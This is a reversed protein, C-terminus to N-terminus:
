GNITIKLINSEIDVESSVKYLSAFYKLESDSVVNAKFGFSTVKTEIPKETTDMKLITDTMEDNVYLQLGLANFKEKDVLGEVNLMVGAVKDESYSGLELKRESKTGVEYFTRDGYEVENYSGSYNYSLYTTWHESSYQIALNNQCMRGLFLGRTETEGEGLGYEWYSNEEISFADTTSNNLADSLSPVKDPNTEETYYWGYLNTDTGLYKNEDELNGYFVVDSPKIYINSDLISGKDIRNATFIIDYINEEKNYKSVVVLEEDNDPKIYDAEYEQCAAKWTDYDTITKKAASDLEIYLIFGNYFYKGDKGLVVDMEFGSNNNSFETYQKTYDITSVSSEIGPFNGKGNTLIKITNSNNVNAGTRALILKSYSSNYYKDIVHKHWLGKLHVIKLKVTKSEVEEGTEKIIESFVPSSVTEVGYKDISGLFYYKNLLSADVQKELETIKDDAADLVVNFIKYVKVNSSITQKLDGEIVLEINEYSHGLSSSYILRSLFKRLANDFNVSFESSFGSINSLKFVLTNGNEFRASEAFDLHLYKEMFDFVKMTGKVCYFLKTIYTVINHLYEENNGESLVKDRLICWTFYYVPDGQNIKVVEDIDGILFDDSTRLPNETEYTTLMNYFDSIIKLKKLHNPIYINSM